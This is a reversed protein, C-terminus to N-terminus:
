LIVASKNRGIKIAKQKKGVKTCKCSNRVKLYSVCLGNPTEIDSTFLFIALIDNRM